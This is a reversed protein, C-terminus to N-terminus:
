GEVQWPVGGLFLLFLVNDVHSWNEDRVGKEMM